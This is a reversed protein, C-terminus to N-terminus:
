RFAGARIWTRIMQFGADTTDAFPKYAHPLGGALPRLLIPSADEDYPNVQQSTQEFDFHANAGDASLQYTGRVGGGHCDMANCGYQVLVPEVADRFQQEDLVFEQGGSPPAPPASPSVCGGAVLCAALLWARRGSGIPNSRM